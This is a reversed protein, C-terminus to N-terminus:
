CCQIKNWVDPYIDPHFRRNEHVEPYYVNETSNLFGIWWSFTGNSLVCSGFKRSFSLTNEPTDSYLIAKYDKILTQVLLNNSDDSSVYINNFSSITSICNTYYDIGPNLCEVDGLRVHIFIDDKYEQSSDFVFFTKMEEYFEVVFEKIQLYGTFRIGNGIENPGKLLELFDNDYYDKLDQNVISGKHLNAGLQLLVNEAPYSEVKYDFKKSLFTMGLSQFMMNGLRSGANLNVVIM